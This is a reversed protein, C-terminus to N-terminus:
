RRSSTVIYAAGFISRLPRRVGHVGVLRSDIENMERSLRVAVRRELGFQEREEIALRSIQERLEGDVAVCARAARVDRVFQAAGGERDARAADGARRLREFREQAGVAHARLLSFPSEASQGGRPGLRPARDGSQEASGLRLIKAALM